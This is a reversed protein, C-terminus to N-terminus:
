LSVVEDKMGWEQCVNCSGLGSSVFKEDKIGGSVWVGRIDGVGSVWSSRKDKIM